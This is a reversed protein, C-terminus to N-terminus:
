VAKPRSSGPIHLAQLLRHLLWQTPKLAMAFIPIRWTGPWRAPGGESSDHQIGQQSRNHKLLATAIIAPPDSHCAVLVFLPFLLATVAAGIYFPLLLTVLTMLLGYGAFFAASSEFFALRDPLSFGRLAWAYDYCYYAWLWCSLVFYVPPGIYPLQGVLWSEGYFVLFLVVRFLEQAAVEEFGATAARPSPRLTPFRQAKLPMSGASASIRSGGAPGPGGVSASSQGDSPPRHAQGPRGEQPQKGAIVKHKHLVQLAITAMEDYWSCSVALTVVYVPVLWCAHYLAHLLSEIISASMSGTVPVVQTADALPHSTAPSADVVGPQGPVRLRQPAPLTPGQGM